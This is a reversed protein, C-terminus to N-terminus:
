AKEVKNIVTPFPKEQPIQFKKIENVLGERFTQIPSMLYAYQDLQGFMFKLNLENIGFMRLGTKDPSRLIAAANEFDSKALISNNLDM